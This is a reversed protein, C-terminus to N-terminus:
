VEDFSVNKELKRKGEFQKGSYRNSEKKRRRDDSSEVGPPLDVNDDENTRRPDFWFEREQVDLFVNTTRENFIAETRAFRMLNRLERSSGKLRGADAMGTMSPIAVAAMVAIIVVVIMLEMLT